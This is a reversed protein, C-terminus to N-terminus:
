IEDHYKEVACDTAKIESSPMLAVLGDYKYKKFSFKKKIKYAVFDYHVLYRLNNKKYIFKAKLKKYYIKIMEMLSYRKTCGRFSCQGKWDADTFIGSHSAPFVQCMKPRNEYNLCNGTISCHYKCTYYHARYDGQNELDKFNNLPIVSRKDYTFERPDSGLYEIMDLVKLEERDYEDMKELSMLKNRKEEIESPKCWPLIFAKCCHGSCRREFTPLKLKM